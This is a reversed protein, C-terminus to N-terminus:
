YWIRWYSPRSAMAGILRTPTLTIYVGGAVLSAPSGLGMHAIKFQDIMRDLEAQEDRLIDGWRTMYDRRDFRALSVGQVDPQEVYSRRLHKIIEVFLAQELTGGWQDVPFAKGGQAPDLAYTQHPQSWTNLRNLASRLAQAMRNRGWNTQLYVQLHPGGLPSDFLDSFRWYVNEVVAKMADPLADYDPSTNGVEYYTERTRDDGDIAFDWYILFLGPTQTEASTLAVEYVGVSPHAATGAAVEESAENVITYTVVGDADALAGEVYVRIGLTADAFNSVFARDSLALEDATELTM